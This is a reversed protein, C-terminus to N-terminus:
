SVFRVTDQVDFAEREIYTDLYAQYADRDWYYNTLYSLVYWELVGDTGMDQFQQAHTLEHALLSIGRISNPNYDGPAIYIDRDWTRGHVNPGLLVDKHLNVKNWDLRPFYPALIKKMCDPVPFLGYPDVLNTPRNGVYRYLGNGDQLFMPDERVFRGTQPDYYRARYYSRRPGELPPPALNQSRPFPIQLM